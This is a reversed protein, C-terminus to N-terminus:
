IAPSWFWLGPYSQSGSVSLTVSNVLQCFRCPHIHIPCYQNRIQLTTHQYSLSRTKLFYGRSHKPTILCGRARLLNLSLSIIICVWVSSHVIFCILYLTLLRSIQSFPSSSNKTSNQCNKQLDSVTEFDIIKLFGILFYYNISSIFWFTFVERVFKAM